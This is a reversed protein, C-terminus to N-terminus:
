SCQSLLVVLVAWCFASMLSASVVAVCPVASSASVLLCM